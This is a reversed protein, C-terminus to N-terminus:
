SLRHWIEGHGDPCTSPMHVHLETKRHNKANSAGSSKTTSPRGTVEAVQQHVFKNEPISFTKILAPRRVGGGGNGPASMPKQCTELVGGSPKHLWRLVRDVYSGNDDNGNNNNGNANVVTLPSRNTKANSTSGGSNKHQLRSRKEKEPPPREDTVDDDDSMIVHRVGKVWTTRVALRGRSSKWRCSEYPRDAAATGKM